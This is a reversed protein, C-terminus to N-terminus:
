RSSQAQSQEERCHEKNAAHKDDHPRKKQGALIKVSEFGHFFARSM